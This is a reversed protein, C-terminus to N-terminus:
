STKAPGKKEFNDKFLRMADTKSLAIHPPTNNTTSYIFRLYLFFFLLSIILVTAGILSSKISFNGAQLDIINTSVVRSTYIGQNLQLFSFILGSIVLTTAIVTLIWSFVSQQIFIKRPYDFRWVLHNVYAKEIIKWEDTEVIDQEKKEQIHFWYDIYELTSTLSLDNLEVAAERDDLARDSFIYKFPKKKVDDTTNM